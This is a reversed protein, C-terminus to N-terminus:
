SSIMIRSSVTLSIRVKLALIRSGLLTDPLSTECLCTNISSQKGLWDRPRKTEESLPHHSGERADEPHLFTQVQQTQKFNAMRGDPIFGLSSDTSTLSLSDINPHHSERGRHQKRSFAGVQPSEEGGRGDACQTCQVIIVRVTGTITGEMVYSSTHLGRNSKKSSGVLHSLYFFGSGTRKHLAHKGRDIGCVVVNPVHTHARVKGQTGSFIKGCKKINRPLTLQHGSRKATTQIGGGRHLHATRKALNSFRTHRDESDNMLRPVAYKQAIEKRHTSCTGLNFCWDSDTACERRREQVVVLYSIKLSKWLTSSRPFPPLVTYKPGESRASSYKWAMPNSHGGRTLGGSKKMSQMAPRHNRTGGKGGQGPQKHRPHTPCANVQSSRVEGVIMLTRVCRHIARQQQQPHHITAM